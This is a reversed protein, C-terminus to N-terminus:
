ARLALAALGGADIVRIRGRELRVLGRGEMQKLRRSVVERATGIADAM